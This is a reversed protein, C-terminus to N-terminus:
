ECLNVLGGSAVLRSPVSQVITDSDDAPIGSSSHLSRCETRSAAATGGHSKPEAAMTHLAVYIGTYLPNSLINTLTSTYWYPKSTAESAGYDFGNHLHERLPDVVPIDCAPATDPPGRKGCM